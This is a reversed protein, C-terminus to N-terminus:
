SLNASQREAPRLLGRVLNRAHRRSSTYTREGCRIVVCLGRSDYSDIVQSRLAHELLDDLSNRDLDDM